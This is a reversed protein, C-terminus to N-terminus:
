NYYDGDPNGSKGLSLIGHYKWTKNKQKKKCIELYLKREKEIHGGCRDMGERRLLHSHLNSIKLVKTSGKQFHDEWVELM